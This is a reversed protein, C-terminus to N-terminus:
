EDSQTQPVSMEQHSKEIRFTLRGTSRGFSHSKEDPGPRLYNFKLSAHLM